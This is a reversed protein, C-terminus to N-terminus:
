DQSANEQTALAQELTPCIQFLKDLQTIKFVRMVSPQPGVLTLMGQNTRCQRHAKILAGLGMSSTFALDGLDIILRFKKATFLKEFQENLAAAETIDASGSLRIVTSNHRESLSIQLNSM